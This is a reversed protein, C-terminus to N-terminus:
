AIYLLPTGFSHFTIQTLDPIPTRIREILRHVIKDPIKRHRETREDRFFQFGECYPDWKPLASKNLYILIVEKVEDYM